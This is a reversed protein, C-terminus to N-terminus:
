ATAVKIIVKKVKGQYNNSLIQPGHLDNPFYILVLDETDLLDAYSVKSADTDIFGVDPFKGFDADVEADDRHKWALRESGQVIFHVDLFKQHYEMHIKEEAPKTSFEQCNIILKDEEVVTKGVSFGAKDFNELIDISKLILANNPVQERIKKLSSIIM